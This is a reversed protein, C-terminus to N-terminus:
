QKCHGIQSLIFVSDIRQTANSCLLGFALHSIRGKRRSRGWDVRIHFGEVELMKESAERVMPGLACDTGEIIVLDLEGLQQAFKNPVRMRVSILKEEDYVARQIYLQTISIDDQLRPLNKHDRSTHLM